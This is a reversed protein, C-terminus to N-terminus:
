RPGSNLVNKNVVASQAVLDESALSDLNFTEKQRKTPKRSPDFLVPDDIIKKGFVAGFASELSTRLDAELKLSFICQFPLDDPRKLLIVARLSSPIGTKETSNELLTWTAADDDGYDRGLQHRKGELRVSDNKSKSTSREWGLHAGAHFGAVPTAGIDLGTSITTEVPRTTEALVFSGCPEISVVSPGEEEDGCTSIFQFTIQAAKIRRANKHSGFAFDLVILTAPAEEDGDYSDASGLRGHVVDIMRCQAGVVGNRETIKARQYPQSPDNRTRYGTADNGTPHLELDIIAPDENGEEFEVGDQNNLEESRDPLQEREM